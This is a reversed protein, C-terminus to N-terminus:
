INHNYQLTSCHSIIYNTHMAPYQWFTLKLYFMIKIIVTADTKVKIFLSTMRESSNYYRSLSNIMRIANILSPISGMMENQFLVFINENLKELSCTFDRYLISVSPGAFM